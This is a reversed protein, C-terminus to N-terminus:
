RDYDLDIVKFTTGDFTYDVHMERGYDWAILITGSYVEYTGTFTIDYQSTTLVGEVATDDFTLSLIGLYTKYYSWGSITNAKIRAVIEAKTADDLTQYFEARSGFESGYVEASRFNFLYEEGDVTVTAILSKEAEDELQQPVEMYYRVIGQTEGFPEFTLTGDNDWDYEDDLLCSYPANCRYVYGEDFDVSIGIDVSVNTKESGIYEVLIEGYLNVKGDEALYPNNSSKSAGIDTLYNEEMTNELCQAYGTFSPTIRFLETEIVDGLSYIVPEPETTMETSETAPEATTETTAETTTESNNQQSHDSGCAFLALCIILIWLLAIYKRM